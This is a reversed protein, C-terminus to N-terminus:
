CRRPHERFAESSGRVAGIQGTTIPSEAKWRLPMAAAMCGTAPIKLTGSFVDKAYWTPGPM